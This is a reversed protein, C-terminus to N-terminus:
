HAQDQVGHENNSTRDAKKVPKSSRRHIPCPGLRALAAQHTENMYGKNDAFSYGPYLSALEAMHRAHAVRAVMHAASGTSM